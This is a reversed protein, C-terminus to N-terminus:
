PTNLSKLYLRLSSNPCNKKRTKRRKVGLTKLVSKQCHKVKKLLNVDNNESNMERLYYIVVVIDNGNNYVTCWRINM